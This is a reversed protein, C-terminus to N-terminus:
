RGTLANPGGRGEKEMQPYQGNLAPDAVRIAVLGEVSKLAEQLADRASILEALQVELDNQKSTLKVM